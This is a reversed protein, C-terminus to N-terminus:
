APPPEPGWGGPPPTPPPKPQESSPPPPQEPTEEGKKAETDAEPKKKVQTEGDFSEVGEGHGNMAINQGPPIPEGKPKPNVSKRYEDIIQLLGENQAKPAKFKMKVFIANQTGEGNTHKMATFDVEWSARTVHDQDAEEAKAAKKIVQKNIRMAMEIEMEDLRMSNPDVITILPVHMWYDKQVEFTIMKPRQKTIGTKEDKEETFYRDLIEISHREAIEQAREVAFQFGRIVDTFTGPHPPEPVPGPPPEEPDLKKAIWDLFGM